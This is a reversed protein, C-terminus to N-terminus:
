EEEDECKEMSKEEHLGILALVLIIVLVVFTEISADFRLPIKTFNALLSPLYGKSFIPIQYPKQTLVFLTIASVVLFILGGFIPNKAM